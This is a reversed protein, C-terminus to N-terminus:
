IITISLNPQEPLSFDARFRESWFTESGRPDGAGTTSRERRRTMSTRVLSSAKEKEAFNKTRVMRVFSGYSHGGGSTRPVDPGFVEEKPQSKKKMVGARRRSM